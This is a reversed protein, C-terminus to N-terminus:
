RTLFLFSGLRRSAVWGQCALAGAGLRSVAGLSSQWTQEASQFGMCSRRELSPPCQEEEEGDRPETKGDIFHHVQGPDIDPGRGRPLGFGDRPQEGPVGGAGPVGPVIGRAGPM